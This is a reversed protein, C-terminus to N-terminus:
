VRLGMWESLDSLSVIHLMYTDIIVTGIRRLVMATVMYMVVVLGLSWGM